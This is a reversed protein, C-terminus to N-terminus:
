KTQHKKIEEMMADIGHKLTEWEEPDIQIQQEKVETSGSQQTVLLFEGAAEDKIEITTCCESFIPESKPLIAIKLTRTIYKSM